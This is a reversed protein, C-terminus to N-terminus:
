LIIRQCEPVHRLFCLTLCLALSFGQNILTKLRNKVNQCELVRNKIFYYIFFFYFIYLFNFVYPSFNLFCLALTGFQKKGSYFGTFDLTEPKPVRASQCESCLALIIKQSNTLKCFLFSVAVSM